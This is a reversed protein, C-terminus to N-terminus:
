DAPVCGESTSNAPCCQWKSINANGVNTGSNEVPEAHWDQGYSTRCTQTALSRQIIPLVFIYFLAFVAAVAVITVVTMNLEGTAEKM